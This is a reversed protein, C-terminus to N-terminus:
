IYQRGMANVTWFYCLYFFLICLFFEGSFRFLANHLADPLFLNLKRNLPLTCFLFILLAMLMPLAMKIATLRKVLTKMEKGGVGIFRLIRHNRSAQRLEMIQHLALISFYIVAFVICMSIQVAGMWEQINEEFLTFESQLMLKGTIFSGASFLFCICFVANVVAPTKFDATLCSVTYLRTKHYVSATRNRRYRYLFDFLWQYFAFVSIVLPVSVLATLCIAANEPLLAMGYVFGILCVFSVLFVIGWAMCRGQRSVTQNRCSENMLERIQLRNLRQKMRLCCVAEVLCFCIFTNWTSKCYLLGYSIEEHLDMGLFRYAAFGATAGTLFCFFGILLIECLFLPILKKKKMGLLLYSALEKARQRLMFSDIHGMLIILVIATLLPLSVTQMGVTNGVVSICNSVETVALLITTTLIYLLYNAFSRKANRVSLKFYIM